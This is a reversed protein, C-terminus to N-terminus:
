PLGLVHVAHRLLAAAVAALALCGAGRLRYRWALRRRPLASILYAGGQPPKCLVNLDPDAAREALRARVIEGAVIRAAEWEATDIRGDLNRDFRRLLEAPNKKWEAMEAAIERPEDLDQDATQTRFWGQAYVPTGSALVQEHYYYQGFSLFTDIGPQPAKGPRPSIGRWRRSLSPTVEAGVPDVICDGSVDSLCFLDDSSAREVTHWRDRDDRCRVEIRWWVCASGSLPAIIPPGPLVCVRGELEVLGQAASRIWSVPLDEIRRARRLLSFGAWLAVLAALGAFIAIAGAGGV